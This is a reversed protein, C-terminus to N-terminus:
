LADEAGPAAAATMRRHVDVWEHRFAQMERRSMLDLVADAAKAVDEREVICLGAETLAALARDTMSYSDSDWTSAIANQIVSRANRATVGADEDRHPM